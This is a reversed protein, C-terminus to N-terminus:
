AGPPQAQPVDATYGSPNYQPLIEPNVPEPAATPAPNTTILESETPSALVQIHVHNQGAFFLGQGVPFQSLRKKEESTLKFVDAL